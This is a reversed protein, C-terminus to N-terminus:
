QHQNHTNLPHDRELKQCDKIILKTLSSTWLRLYPISTLKGCEEIELKELCPFSIDHQPPASWEELNELNSILLRTLSPFLIRTTTDPTASGKSEEEEEQQCYFEKGLCKVSNMRQIGLIQLCPLQGMGVLKTCSKCDKFNLKVLNPLCSSSGMWKPLKLGPFGEISLEKLNPHPQLGELVMFSNNTTWEEEEQFNKKWELSLNRINQKGKFNAKEAEIKGGRVNELNVIGLEQLSKLDALEQINSVDEEKNVIFPRLVELRTLNEIGRPM